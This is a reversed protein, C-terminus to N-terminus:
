HDHYNMIEGIAHRNLKIKKGDLLLESNDDLPSEGTYRQVWNQEFIIKEIKELFNNSKKSSVYSLLVKLHIVFAENPNVHDAATMAITRPAMEINSTQKEAILILSFSKSVNSVWRTRYTKLRNTMKPFNGTKKPTFRDNWSTIYPELIEFSTM